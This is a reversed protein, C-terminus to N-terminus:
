ADFMGRLANAADDIAVAADDVMTGMRMFGHIMGPYNIHIATGGASRLAEAYALGEDHLPDFEATQILAPPLGSLDKAMAPSARPDTADFPDNLYCERMWAIAGDSLGYGAGNSRPSTMDATFDVAPYILLQFIIPPGGKDRVAQCAAAALNGGASDGGIALRSPDGGISSANAGVWDLAALCDELGIPFKYEPALRYDVSVTLCAAQHALLRCLADHTDIDGFVWGGGHLFVLIPLGGPVSETEPTYVRVPIDFDDGTVARDEVSRLVPTPPAFIETGAAYLRRAEAPDRTDFVTPGDANAMADLIAQCQPHVPM